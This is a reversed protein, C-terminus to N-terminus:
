IQQANGPTLLPPVNLLQLFGFVPMQNMSAKIVLLSPYAILAPMWKSTMLWLRGINIQSKKGPWAPSHSHSHHCETRWVQQQEALAWSHSDPQFDETQLQEHPWILQSNLSEAGPQLLFKTSHSLLLKLTLCHLQKLSYIRQLRQIEKLSISSEPDISLGFSWTSSDLLALSSQKSHAPVLLFKGHTCIGTKCSTSQCRISRSGTVSINCCQWM